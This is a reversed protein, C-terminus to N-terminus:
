SSNSRSQCPRMSTYPYPLPTEVKVLATPSSKLTLSPLDSAFYNANYLHFALILLVVYGEPLINIIQKGMILSHNHLISSVKVNRESISLEGSDYFLKVIGLLWAHWPVPINFMLLWNFLFHASFLTLVAPNSLELWPIRLSPLTFLYVFDFFIWKTFYYFSSGNDELMQVWDYFRWAFLGVYIAFAYFRQSPADVVHLPIVPQTAPGARGVNEPAQPLPNIVIPPQQQQGPQVPGPTQPFGGATVNPTGNM